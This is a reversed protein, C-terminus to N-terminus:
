LLDVRDKVTVPFTTSTLSVNTKLSDQIQVDANSATQPKLSPKKQVASQSMPQQLFPKYICKFSQYRKSIDKGM